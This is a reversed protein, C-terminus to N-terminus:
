LAAATVFLQDLEAGDLGLAAGLQAVLPSARQVTSSYGWEIQAETKQPDAMAAIAADVASLKSIANLALRAQRMTVEGPVLSAPPTPPLTDGAGYVDWTTGNFHILVADRVTQAEQLTAFTKM